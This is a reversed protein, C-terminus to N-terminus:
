WGPNNGGLKSNTNVEDTSIPFLLNRDARVKTLRDNGQIVVGLKNMVQLYVGWRLLDYRRQAEFVLERGREAFIFSRLDPQSLGAPTASAHSRLRISDVYRYAEPTPGNVENEAEAYILMVEAYRLMPFYADSNATGPNSVYSFKNCYARNYYTGNWIYQNGAADTKYLATDEEPYLIYNTYQPQRYDVIYQHAVGHLIREDDHEYEKYHNNTMWVAAVGSRDPQASNFYYFLNTQLNDNGAQAQIEWMLEKQNRSSIQWIDMFNPFLSYEGSQLVELSKMRASDFYARSDFNDYGAVVDKAYTYMGNDQGGQVTLSAGKLSGSAMTLYAKALFASAVGRTVRGKEGSRSDSASFLLKEATKFDNIVVNFVEAVSSKPMDPADGSAVTHLHVPVAGYVRVLDFYAWGRLFTVEGILRNRIDANMNVNAINELVSNARSILLYHDGWINNIGWFASPNGAGINGLFWDAGMAHDCDLDTLWYPQKMMGWGWFTNYVGNVAATADAENKYFNAASLFSYPKETLVKNCGINFLAAVSILLGFIKKM